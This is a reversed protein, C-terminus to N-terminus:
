AAGGIKDLASRNKHGLKKFETPTMGTLKRFQGSLHAVSSYGMKEAIASLTLEDYVLYEKVKETKQLLIYQEITLGEVESFLRSLSAYDQGSEQAIVESYKYPTPEESHHVLRIITNKIREILRSRKDDILEFGLNGLAKALRGRSTPDLAEQQLKVEGLQISQTELGQAEMVKQVAMVCRDCVMNKIFLQM